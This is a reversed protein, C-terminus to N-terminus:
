AGWPWERHGRAKKAGLRASKPMSDLVNASKHVWCRQERTDPFVEALAKWFHLDGYGVALVPVRM